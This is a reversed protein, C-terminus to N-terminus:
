ATEGAEAERQDRAAAWIDIRKIWDTRFLAFQVVDIRGKESAHHQRLVGEREWGESHMAWLSQADGQQCTAMIKQVGLKRFAFDNVASRAESGAGKDQWEHDGLCIGVTAIQHMPNIQLQLFGIQRERDDQPTIWFLFGNKNDHGLILRSIENSGLQGAPLNVFKRMEPDNLWDYIGDSLEELELTQILLRDTGIECYEEPTHRLAIIYPSNRIRM